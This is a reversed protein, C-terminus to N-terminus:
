FLIAQYYYFIPFFSFRSKRLIKKLLFLLDPIVIFHLTNWDIEVHDDTHLRQLDNKVKDFYFLFCLQIDTTLKNNTHTHTHPIALYLSFIFQFVLCIILKPMDFDFIKRVNVIFLLNLGFVKWEYQKIRTTQVLFQKFLKFDFTM